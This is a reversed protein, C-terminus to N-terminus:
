KIYSGNSNEQLFLVSNLQIVLNVIVTRETLKLILIWNFGFYRRGWPKETTSGISPQLVSHHKIIRTRVHLMRVLFTIFAIVNVPVASSIQLQLATLASAKWWHLTMDCNISCIFYIETLCCSKNRNQAILKALWGIMSRPHGWTFIRSVM